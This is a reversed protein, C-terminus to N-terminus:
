HAPKSGTIGWLLADLGDKSIGGRLDVWHLQGLFTPLEPKKAAGPLLVPIVPLRREVFQALCARMEVSQWPGLGDKGILVAASETTEVIEELAEQWPRGPVLEWDALWVSLGAVKLQTGLEQVAVKDSDNHCLFVDFLGAHKAMSDQRVLYAVHRVGHQDVSFPRSAVVGLDPLERSRRWADKSIMVQVSQGAYNFERAQQVFATALSVSFSTPCDILNIRGEVTREVIVSGFVITLIVRHQAEESVGPDAALRDKISQALKWAETAYGTCVVADDSRRRVDCLFEENQRALMMQVIRGRVRERLDDSSSNPFSAIILFVDERPIRRTANMLAVRHQGVDFHQRTSGTYIRPAIKSASTVLENFCNLAADLEAVLWARQEGREAPPRSKELVSNVDLTSFQRSAEVQKNYANAAILPSSCCYDRLETGRRVDLHHRNWLDTMRAQTLAGAEFLTRTVFSTLLDILKVMANLQKFAGDYAADRERSLITSEGVRLWWRRADPSSKMADHIESRLDDYDATWVRYKKKAETVYVISWFLKELVDERLNLDGDSSLDKKAAYLMDGFSFPTGDNRKSSGCWAHVEYATAQFARDATGCTSLLLKADTSIQSFIHYFNKFSTFFREEEEYSWTTKFATKYDLNPVLVRRRSRTGGRHNKTEERELFPPNDSTTLCDVLSRDGVTCIMGFQGPGVEVPLFPCIHKVCACIKHMDFPTISVQKRTGDELERVADRLKNRLQQGPEDDSDEGCYFARFTWGELSIVKPVALARDVCYDIALSINRASFQIGYETRLLDRIGEYSFGVNLRQSEPARERVRSSDTVKRIALLLKGIAEVCSDATSPRYESHERIFAIIRRTLEPDQFSAEDTSHTDGFGAPPTNQERFSRWAEIMGAGVRPGLVLLPDIDEFTIAQVAFEGLLSKEVDEVVQAGLLTAGFFTLARLLAADRYPDSGLISLDLARWV